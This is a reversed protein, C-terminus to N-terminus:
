QGSRVPTPTVGRCDCDPHFTTDEWSVKGEDVRFVARTFGATVGAMGGPTVLLIMLAWAMGINTTTTLPSNKGWLQSSVELWGITDDRRHFEVCTLCPTEGPTVVPGVTITQDSFVVPCHSVNHRLLHDAWRPHVLYDAVLFVLDASPETEDTIVEPVTMHVGTLHALATLGTIAQSTSWTELRLARVPAPTDLVPRLSEVLHDVWDQSVQHVDALMALGSAPTGERLAHLLPAASDPVNDVRARPPDVGVQVSNASTWLLPLHAPLRFVPSAM